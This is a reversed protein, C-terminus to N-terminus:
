RVRHRPAKRFQSLTQGTRRRYFTALQEGNAYGMDRAIQYIPRRTDRLLREIEAVAVRHIEQQVSRKLGLQFRRELSRRSLAVHEAVDAVSIRRRINESIFRVASRMDEDEMALIDTSRRVIVSRPGIRLSPLPAPAPKETILRELLAAAEQGIAESDLEISSIPPVSTGCFLEDNDVGLVAVDEPVQLNCTRCATIVDAARFDNSALIAVPKPLSQLWRCLKRQDQSWGDAAHAASSMYRAVEGAGSGIRAAFAELRELAYQRDDFGCFAMNHFGRQLFHEAALAAVAQEDVRVTPFPHDRLVNAVDVAPLGSRQIRRIQSREHVFVILGDGKWREVPPLPALVRRPQTHFIWRSPSAQCYRQIGRFVGRLYSASFDFMLGVHLTNVRVIM